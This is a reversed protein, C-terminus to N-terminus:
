APAIVSRGVAVFVALALLLANGVANRRESRSLHLGIAFTMVLALGVAALPTLWPLVGTVAPLILGVAGLLEFLGIIRVGETPIASAWPMQRKTQEYRFAHMAGAAFFALALLIQALWLLYTM